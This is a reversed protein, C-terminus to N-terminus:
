SRSGAGTWRAEPLASREDARALLREAERPHSCDTGCRPAKEDSAPSSYRRYRLWCSLDWSAVAACTKMDPCNPIPLDSVPEDSAVDEPVDEPASAEATADGSFTESAESSASRRLPM